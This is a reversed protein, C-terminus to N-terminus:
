VKSWKLDHNQKKCNEHASWFTYKCEKCTVVQSEAQMVGEMKSAMEEKKELISFYLDQEASILNEVTEHHRSKKKFVDLFLSIQFIM